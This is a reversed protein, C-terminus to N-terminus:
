AAEAESTLTAVEVGTWREFVAFAKNMYIARESEPMAKDSTSALKFYIEGSPLIVENYYGLKKRVIDHMDADTLTTGHKDNLLETVIGVVIWYLSRRKQNRNAKTIKVVARGEIAAIAERAAPNVPFLGGLRREFILPPLEVM